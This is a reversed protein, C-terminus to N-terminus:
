ITEWKVDAPALADFGYVLVAEARTSVESRGLHEATDCVWDHAFERRLGNGFFVSKRLKM